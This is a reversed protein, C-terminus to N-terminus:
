PNEVLALLADNHVPDLSIQKCEDRPEWAVATQSDRGDSTIETATTRRLTLVVAHAGPQCEISHASSNADKWLGVTWNPALSGRDAPLM